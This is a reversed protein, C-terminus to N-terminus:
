APRRDRLVKELWPGVIALLEAPAELPIMHGSAPVVALTSGPIGEHLAQAEDLRRLRDEAGAVILTPCSIEGLRDADGTRVLASQRRFVAGGLRDGMAQIRAVLPGDAHAPAVSSLVASRSLGAFKAPDFSRAVAEKRQRQVDSDGEASTAVLVLALVRHPAAHVAERAVYGGMSFGVLVFHEPADALLRAAMAEITADQSLDAHHISFPAGDTAALGAEFETWLDRDLMYGPVLVMATADARADAGPRSM